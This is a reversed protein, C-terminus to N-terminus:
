GKGLDGNRPLLMVKRLLSVIGKLNGNLKELMKHLTERFILGKDKTGSGTEKGTKLQAVYDRHSELERRLIEVDNRWSSVKQSM